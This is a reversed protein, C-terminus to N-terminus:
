DEIGEDDISLELIKKWEKVDCDMGADNREIAQKIEKQIQFKANSGFIDWYRILDEVMSSVVYTKRGLAYRFALILLSALDQKKIEIISNPM